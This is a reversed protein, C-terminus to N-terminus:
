FFMIEPITELPGDFSIPVAAWSRRVMWAYPM